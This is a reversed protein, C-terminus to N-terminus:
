KNETQELHGWVDSFGKDVKDELSNLSGEIRELAIATREQSQNSKDLHEMLKTEREKADVKHEKYLEKLEQEREANEQKIDSLYSKIARYAVFLLLIFLVAFVYQSTAIEQAVQVEPM